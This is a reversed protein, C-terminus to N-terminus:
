REIRYSLFIVRGTLDYLHGITHIPNGYEDLDPEKNLVNNAGLTFTGITAFTYGAQVNFTNWADIKQDHFTDTQSGIYDWNLSAFAEKLRWTMLLNGRWEPEDRSGAIDITEGTGYTIEQEFTLCRSAHGQLGLHGAPTDFNGSLAFDVFQYQLPAFSNQVGASVKEAYGWENRQVNPNNGGSHYDALLQDWGRTYEISDSVELDFYNASAMWHEAFQWEIGASWSESNEPGLEPNSGITVELPILHCDQASIGNLQCGYFDEVHALYTNSLGFLDSLDPARFGEGWSAKFRLADYGPVHMETGARPSTSSGFDSYDDYRLALDIAWWDSVPLVAEAFLATVHRDGWASNGDAGNVLGAETQPDVLAEFDTRFYEAGAYASVAGGPLHFAHFQVGAFAKHLTQRSERQVSTKMNAILQDPDGESLNFDPGFSRFYGTGVGESEYDSYTYYAEWRSTDAFVGRAGLNIDALTDNVEHDRPGLETLRIWGWTAGIDNRPDGPFPPGSYPLPAWRGSSENRALLADAFLDISDTMEYGASIFSNLRELGARINSVHTFDYGCTFGAGPGLLSELGLVGTFGNGESCGAGPTYHWTSQDDPDYPIGPYWAPNVLLYGTVTVGYTEDGFMVIGDDNYDGWKSRLYNRDAEYLPDRKDYELSFTLSAREERTGFLVSVSKETGGDESRNGYRAQFRLGEYDHKLIINTVGAIADSGYVASAGDAIIEIRDVAAFPMMNLNVTGGGGLLPSGVTRRGNLLVLNREAGVGRLNLVANSQADALSEDAFSGFSNLTSSRLADAVSIDGSAIIDEATFRVVEQSQTNSTREIRSGTVIVEETVLEEADHDADQALVPGVSTTSLAVGLALLLRNLRLGSISNNM